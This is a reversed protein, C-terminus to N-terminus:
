GIYKSPLLLLLLLISIVSINYKSCDGVWGLSNQNCNQSELQVVKNVTRLNTCLYFKCGMWCGNKEKM